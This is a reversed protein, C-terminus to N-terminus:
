SKLSSRSSSMPGTLFFSAPGLSTQNLCRIVVMPSFSFRPSFAIGLFHFQVLAEREGEHRKKEANEAYRQRQQRAATCSATGPAESQAQKPQEGIVTQERESFGQAVFSNQRRSGSEPKGIKGYATNRKIQKCSGHAFRRQGHSRCEVAGKGPRSSVSIRRLFVGYGM